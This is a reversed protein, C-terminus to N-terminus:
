IVSGNFETNQKHTKISKISFYLNDTTQIKELEVFSHM